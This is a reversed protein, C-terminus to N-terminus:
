PKHNFGQLPMTLHDHDPTELAAHSDILFEALSPSCSKGARSDNRRSFLDPLPAGESAECSLFINVDGVRRISLAGAM